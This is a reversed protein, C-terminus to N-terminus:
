NYNCEVGTIERLSGTIIVNNFENIFSVFSLIGMTTWFNFKNYIAMIWKFNVILALGILLVIKTMPHDGYINTVDESNICHSLFFFEFICFVVFLLMLICFVGGEKLKYKDMAKPVVYSKVLGETVLTLLLTNYTLM